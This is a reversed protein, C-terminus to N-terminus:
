ATRQQVGSRLDSGADLEEEEPHHNGVITFRLKTKQLEEPLEDTEHDYPRWYGVEYGHEDDVEVPRRYSQLEGGRTTVVNQAQDQHAQYFLDIDEEILSWGETEAKPFLKINRSCGYRRMGKPVRHLGDKSLYKMLYRGAGDLKDVRRIDVIRGGGIANWNGSVWRQDIYRDVLVHLHPLGSKHFELVWVYSITEGFKRSLYTRFKAWTKTLHAVAEKKDKPCSKPDLTLTLMRTLGHENAAKSIGRYLRNALHPRCDPCSWRKCYMRAFEEYGQHGEVVTRKALM